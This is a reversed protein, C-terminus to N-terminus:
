WHSWRKYYQPLYLMGTWSLYVLFGTRESGIVNLQITNSAATLIVFIQSALNQQVFTEMRSWYVVSGARCNIFITDNKMSTYQFIWTELYIGSCLRTRQYAVHLAAAPANIMGPEFNWYLLTLWMLSPKQPRAFINLCQHIINAAFPPRPSRRLLPFKFITKM